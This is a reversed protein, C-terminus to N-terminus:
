ISNVLNLATLLIALRVLFSAQSFNRPVSNQGASYKTVSPSPAVTIPAFDDMTSSATAHLTGTTNIVPVIQAKSGDNVNHNVAEDFPNSNAVDGVKQTEGQEDQASVLTAVILVIVIYSSKRAFM